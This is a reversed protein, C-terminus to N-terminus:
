IAREVAQHAPGRMRLFKRYQLRSDATVGLGITSGAKSLGWQMLSLANLALAAKEPAAITMGRSRLLDIQQEIPLPPKSYNVAGRFFFVRRTRKGASVSPSAHRTNNRCIYLWFL